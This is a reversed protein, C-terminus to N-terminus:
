NLISIFRHVSALLTTPLAVQSKFGQRPMAAALAAIGEPKVHRAAFGFRLTLQELDPLSPALQILFEHGLFGGVSKCISYM